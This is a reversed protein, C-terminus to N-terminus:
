EPLNSVGTNIESFTNYTFIIFGVGILAAIVSVASSKIILAGVTSIIEFSSGIILVAALRKKLKRRMTATGSDSLAATYRDTVTCLISKIKFMMIIMAASSLLYLLAEVLYQGTIRGLAHEAIQYYKYAFYYNYALSVASICAYIVAYIRIVSAEKVNKSLMAASIAIIIAGIFDPIINYGDIYIDILFAFGILMLFLSKKINLALNQIKAGAASKILKELEIGLATDKKLRRLYGSIAILYCLSAVLCLLTCIILLPTKYQEMPYMYSDLGDSTKLYVLDPILNLISKLIFFIFTILKLQNLYLVPSRADSRAAVQALGEFLGIFFKIAFFPEIVSFVFVALMYLSRDGAALYVVAPVAALRLLSIFALRRIGGSAETFDQGLPVIRAIGWMIFLCGIFDPFPDIITINPNLLFLIGFAILGTNM